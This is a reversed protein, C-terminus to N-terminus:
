YGRGKQFFYCQFELQTIKFVVDVRIPNAGFNLDPAPTGLLNSLDGIHAQGPWALTVGAAGQGVRGEGRMGRRGWREDTTASARVGVRSRWPIRRLVWM